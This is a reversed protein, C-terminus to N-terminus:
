VQKVCGIHSPDSYNHCIELWIAVRLSGVCGDVEATRAQKEVSFETPELEVQPHQLFGFVGSMWQQFPHLKQCDEGRIEVLEEHHSYRAETTLNRSSGALDWGVGHRRGVLHQGYATLEGDMKLPVFGAPFVIEQGPETLRANM